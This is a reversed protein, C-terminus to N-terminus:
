KNDATLLIVQPNNKSINENQKLLDMLTIVSLTKCHKSAAHAELYSIFTNVFKQQYKIGDFSVVVFPGINNTM